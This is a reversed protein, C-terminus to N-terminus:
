PVYIFGQSGGHCSSSNCDGSPITDGMLKTGTANRVGVSLPFSLGASTAAQQTIFFNGLSDSYTSLSKGAADQVRVEVQAAAASAAKDKFVTGGVFWRPGKGGADHCKMCPQKAPDGFGPHDGFQISNKGSKATYAPAGAFVDVGEPEADFGGADKGGSTGSSGSSGTRGSDTAADAGGGSSTGSAAPQSTGDSSLDVEPSSGCAVALCAASIATVLSASALNKM